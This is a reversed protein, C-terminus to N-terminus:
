GEAKDQQGPKAGAGHPDTADEGGPEPSARGQPTLRPREISLDDLNSGPQETGGEREKAM